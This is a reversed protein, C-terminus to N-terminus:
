INRKDWERELIEIAYINSMKTTNWIDRTSGGGGNEM